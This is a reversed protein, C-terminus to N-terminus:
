VKKKVPGAKRAESFFVKTRTPPMRRTVMTPPMPKATKNSWGMHPRPMTRIRTMEGKKMMGVTEASTQFFMNM